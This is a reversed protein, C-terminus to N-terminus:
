VRGLVPSVADVAERTAADAFNTYKLTTGPHDHGLLRGITLVTEGHMLAISAYTHRLDHPRVDRLDAETRVDRWFGTIDSLHDLNGWRSPFVWASKRPLRDLVERAASSLWVTRPGNKSDRLFLKGERYDRWKLTLLESKRCGTLLLLRIVAAQLPRTGDYRNLVDVVRCIEDPSLFRERARRRYRKIDKCPNSDEPRYGYVEAQRLIVSLVPLSRNASAPKAHLSEFWELVEPRTIGAITHGKFRPLINNQYYNLNVALTRPKWHRRYYSFVEDAVAEFAIDAPLDPFSERGKRISALLLRAQLRAESMADADGIKTWRRQGEHQTQLFYSKKGSPPVRIGFGKLDTDRIDYTSNRPKLRDVRSQNLPLNRM